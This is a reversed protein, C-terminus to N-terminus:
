LSISRKLNLNMESGEVSELEEGHFPTNHSKINKPNFVFAGAPIFTSILIVGCCM